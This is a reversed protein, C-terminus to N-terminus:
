KVHLYEVLGVLRQEESFRLLDLYESYYEIDYPSGAQLTTRLARDLSLYSAMEQEHPYILLVSKAHPEAAFVAGSHLVAAGLLLLAIALSRGRAAERLARM